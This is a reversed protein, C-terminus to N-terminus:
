QFCGAKYQQRRRTTQWEPKRRRRPEPEAGDAIPHEDARAHKQRVDGERADETAFDSHKAARTKSGRLEKWACPQSVSASPATCAPAVGCDDARSGTPERARDGGAARAQSDRSASEGASLKNEMERGQVPIAPRGPSSNEREHSSDRFLSRVPSANGRRKGESFAGCREPGRLSQKDRPRVM